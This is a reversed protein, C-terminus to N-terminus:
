PIRDKIFCCATLAQYYNGDNNEFGPPSNGALLRMKTVDMRERDPQEKDM